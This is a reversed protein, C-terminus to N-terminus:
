PDDHRGAEPVDATLGDLLPGAGGAVVSLVVETTGGGIGFLAAETRLRQVGGAAFGEAGQLQACADLVRPVTTGSASKLLAAATTDHRDTVRHALERTLARLQHAALLCSAYRQQVSDREWLPRDAVTRRQLFDRTEALVRRCLAVGWLAGALREVAIHAAFGALGRGTRGLLQARPLRVRDFTLHGTGSGAFLDTDAPEVSVGPATAPVLVWTFCTFHRGPRHRALVVLQDAQTANTIWRKTGTLVLQDDEIVVETELATLDSGSGRDTAALATVSRGELAAALAGAAPGPGPSLTLLPVATALQVCVALTTGVSHRADVDALVAGLEGARVGAAPDGERYVARIRGAAGLERWVQRGGGARAAPGTTAPPAPRPVVAQEPM